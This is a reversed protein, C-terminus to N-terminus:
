QPLHLWRYDMPEIPIDRYAEDIDLKLRVNILGKVEFERNGTQDPPYLKIEKIWTPILRKWDEPNELGNVHDHHSWFFGYFDEPDDRFSLNRLQEEVDRFSQWCGIKM